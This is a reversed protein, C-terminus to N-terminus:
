IEMLQKTAPYYTIHKRINMSLKKLSFRNNLKNLKANVIRYLDHIDYASYFMNTDDAFLVCDIVKSVNCIDDICLIFLLYGFM